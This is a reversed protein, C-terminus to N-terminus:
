EKLEETDTSENSFYHQAFENDVCSHVTKQNILLNTTNENFKSLEKKLDCEEKVNDSSDSFIVFM